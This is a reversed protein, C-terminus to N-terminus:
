NGDRNVMRIIRKKQNSMKMKRQYATMNKM